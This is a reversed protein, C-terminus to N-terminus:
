GQPSSEKRIGGLYAVDKIDVRVENDTDRSITYKGPVSIRQCHFDLVERLDAIFSEM